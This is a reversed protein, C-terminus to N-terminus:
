MYNMPQLCPFFLIPVFVHLLNISYKCKSYESNDFSVVYVMPQTAQKECLEPHNVSSSDLHVGSLPCLFCSFMLNVSHCCHERPQSRRAELLKCKRYFWGTIINCVTVTINNCAVSRPPPPCAKPRFHLPNLKYLYILTWTCKGLSFIGKQFYLCSVSKEDWIIAKPQHPM